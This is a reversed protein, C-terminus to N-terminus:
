EQQALQIDHNVMMRVLEPFTTRPQWGLKEFARSADGFAAQGTELRFFQPDIQVRPQGDMTLGQEEMGTGQWHIPMGAIQFALEIWERLAHLQGTALVLDQPIEVQLMKWIAEVYDGAFGWDRQIDLNGLMLVSQKGTLIRGIARTVKRTVFSEPRRPSEHNFLIGNVAYLQHVERYIRTLQQAFVKSAGYPNRAALPSEENQCGYADGFIEASSAVFLRVPLSSQRIAELLRLTGLANLEATEEPFQFSTPVHSQAAFHYIEDPQERQLIELLTSTQSFGQQILRFRQTDSEDETLLHSINRLESRSVARVLGCVDYGKRLLFEALYSGDQGGVGTILATKMVPPANTETMPSFQWNMDTPIARPFLGM